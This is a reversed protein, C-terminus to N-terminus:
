QPAPAPVMSMFTRAILVPILGLALTLVWYGLVIGAAKRRSFRAVLSVGIILLALEWFVWLDIRSLLAFAVGPTQGPLTDPQAVLSALGPTVLKGTLPVYVAQLVGRIAGPMAAWAAVSFMEAFRGQGGLVTSVFHLVGARFLLSIVLGILGGVVGVALGITMFPSGQRAFQEVQVRAEPPMEALQQQMAEQAIRAGIPFSVIANIVLLVGLIILPVLWLRQPHDRVYTLTAVPHRFIGWLLRLIGWREESAEPAQGNM